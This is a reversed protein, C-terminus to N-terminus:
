WLMTSLISSFFERSPTRYAAICSGRKSRAISSGLTHCNFSLRASKTCVQSITGLTEGYVTRYMLSLLRILSSPVIYEKFPKLIHDDQTLAASEKLSGVIKQVSSMEAIFQQFDPDDVTIDLEIEDLVKKMMTISVDRNNNPYAGLIGNFREFGFCWFGHLPGYDEICEILHCSLHMNIVVHEKGYLQEFKSCFEILFEHAQKANAQSLSQKCFLTCAQVFLWWCQWDEDPLIGRLAYLSYVCVWNKWQDATLGSFGAGLKLPIRGLNQPVILEDVRTQIVSHHSVNLVETEKWTSFTHKAIGLFLSHMPDVVLFRVTDYYPLESLISYRVGYEREIRHQVSATSAILHEHGKKKHIDCTRKPWNETDFGGYDAKEGFAATEFSKLCRSCAKLANHGVVGAVKRSAPVDCSVCLLAARVFRKENGRGLWCGTWLELLEQVMPGLYSNLVDKPEKPGPIIGVFICYEIKYRLTRPLNMVVMYLAGVSYPTHDYPQFWDCNFTLAITCDNNLFPKGQYDLFDKWVKGSYIDTLIPNDLRFNKRWQTCLEWFKPKKMLMSIGKKIGSYCYVKRPRFKYINGTFKVKKMLCEGCASRRSVHPHNPFKVNSCEISTEIGLQNLKTLKTTSQDYLTNCKPCVVYAKYQCTQNLHACKRVHYMSKPLMDLLMGLSSNPILRAIFSLLIVLFQILTSIVTDLLKHLLQLKMLFLSIFKVIQWYNGQTQDEARECSASDDRMGDNAETHSNTAEPPEADDDGVDGESFLEINQDDNM